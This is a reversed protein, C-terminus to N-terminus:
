VTASVRRVRKRWCGRAACNECVQRLGQPTEIELSAAAIDNRKGSAAWGVAYACWGCGLLPGIYTKEKTAPNM